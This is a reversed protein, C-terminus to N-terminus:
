VTVGHAQQPTNIGGVCCLFLVGCLSVSIAGALQLLSVSKGGERLLEKRRGGTWRGAVVNIRGSATSGGQVNVLCLYSGM